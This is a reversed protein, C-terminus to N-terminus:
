VDLRRFFWGIPIMFGVLEYLVGGGGYLVGGGVDSDDDVWGSVDIIRDSDDVFWDSIMPIVFEDFVGGGGDFDDIILDSDEVFGGSEEIFVDSSSKIVSPSKGSSSAVTVFTWPLDKWFRIKKNLLKLSTYIGHSEYQIGHSEYIFGMQNM